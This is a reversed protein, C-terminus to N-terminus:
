TWYIEFPSFGFSRIRAMGNPVNYNTQITMNKFKNRTEHKRNRAELKDRIVLVDRREVTRALANVLQRHAGPWLKVGL